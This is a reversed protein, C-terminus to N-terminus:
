QQLTSTGQAEKQGRGSQKAGGDKAHELFQERSEGPQLVLEARYGYKSWRSHRVRVQADDRLRPNGRMRDLGRFIAALM